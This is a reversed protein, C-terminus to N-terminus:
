SKKPRVSSSILTLRQHGVNPMPVNGSILQSVLYIYDVKMKPHIAAVSSMVQVVRQWRCALDEGSSLSGECNMEQVEDAFSLSPYTAEVIKKM